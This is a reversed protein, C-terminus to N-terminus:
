TIQYIKSNTFSKVEKIGKLRKLRQTIELGSPAIGHSLRFKDQHLRDYDDIDVIVYNVGLKKFKFVTTQDPFTMLLNTVLSQWPPPSFGSAGNVTRRFSDTMYYQRQLEKTAYPFTNWNYIPMEIVVSNQATTQLWSYEPPFNAKPPVSIFPITSQFEFIVGALLLLHCFRRKQLSVNGLVKQLLWVDVVAFCLIFLVEWRASNRMGNFGPVVYYLLAYPLPIPFPHHITHRAIHLFPGFSLILGLIGIAALSLVEFSPKLKKKIVLILSLFTLLFFVLGPWGNKFSVSNPYTQPHQVALFLPMLRTFEYSYFL